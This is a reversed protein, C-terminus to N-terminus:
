LVLLVVCRLAFYSVPFYTDAAGRMVNESLKFHIDKELADALKPIASAMPPRDALFSQPKGHSVPMNWVSGKVLCTRGHFTHICLPSSTLDTEVKDDNNSALAELHHPLAFMIFADEQKSGEAKTKSSSARLSSAAVSSASVKDKSDGAVANGGSSSTADWDFVVNTVRDDESEEEEEPFQTGVLPSKPYLDKGARLMKLYEEARDKSSVTDYGLTALHDCHEHIISRGTTCENLLAMRVVLEEGDGSSDDDVVETVDLRFQVEVNDGPVSIAAVADSYCQVKVPRSFFAVWTFDSQELHFIIERRVTYEQPKGTSTIPSPHQNLDQVIPKGTFSGCQMENKPTKKNTSTTTTNLEATTDAPSSVIDSDLLISTPRNGSLITPLVFSSGKKPTSTKGYRVTGYPMGRVVHTKMNVNKWKLSVGLQSIDEDGDVEYSTLSTSEKDDEESLRRNLNGGDLVAGVSVGNNKDFVIQMNASSTKMVPLFLEIGAMTTATNTSEEKSHHDPAAPVNPPSVGLVYPITYVHAIEGATSPDNAARHSLLNQIPQNDDHTSLSTQPSTANKCISSLARLFSDVSLCLHNSLSVVIHPSM